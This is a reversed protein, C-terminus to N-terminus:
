LSGLLERTRGSMSRVRGNFVPAFREWEAMTGLNGGQKWPPDYFRGSGDMPIGCLVVEEYGLALAVRTAFLGSTGGLPGGWVHDVMPAAAPAHVRARCDSIWRDSGDHNQARRAGKALPRYWQWREVHGGAWHAFEVPLYLGAQKVAMWAGSWESWRLREMDDWLCRASGCIAIKGSQVGAVGSPWSKFGLDDGPHLGNPM